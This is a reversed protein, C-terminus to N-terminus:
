SQQDASWLDAICLQNGIRTPCRSLTKGEDHWFVGNQPTKELGCTSGSKQGFNKDRSDATPAGAPQFIEESPGAFYSKRAVRHEWNGYYFWHLRANAGAPRPWRVPDVM